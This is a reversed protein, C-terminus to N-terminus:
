FLPIARGAVQGISPWGMVAFRSDLSDPHPAYAYFHGAPIIGVPGLALPAGHRSLLKATSIHEGNLYLARGEATVRDGQLGRVQKVFVFGAPYPAGGAWRFAVYDGRKIDLDGKMVLFVSYPLSHTVAILLTFFTNFAFILALLAAWFLGFRRLHPLLVTDLYAAARPRSFLAALKGGRWLSVPEM